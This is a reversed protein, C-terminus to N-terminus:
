TEYYSRELNDQIDCKFIIHINLYMHDVNFLISSKKPFISFVIYIKIVGTYILVSKKNM